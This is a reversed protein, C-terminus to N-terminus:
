PYNFVDMLPLDRDSTGFDPYSWHNRAQSRQRDMDKIEELSLLEFPDNL